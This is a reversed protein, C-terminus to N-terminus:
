NLIEPQVARRSFLGETGKRPWPVIVAPRQICPQLPRQALPISVVCISSNVTSMATAALPVAPTAAPLDPIEPRPMAVSKQAVFSADLGGISGNGSVDGVIVPDILPFADFGKVAGIAVNAIYAADMGSYRKNGSTDGLYAVAQIATDGQAAGGNVKVAELKLLGAAGYPAMAPVSAQIQLLDKVGASLATTGCATVTMRGPAKLNAVVTWDSPLASALTIDRVNLLTPDFVLEAYISLVGATNDMKVPLSFSQKPGRAIDPLSVVPGRGATVAVRQVFNGGATGDKDGDLGAFGDPRSFLTVTYDDTPLLGGSKVFHLTNTASEWLATGSLAGSQAGVITLDAARGKNAMGDYLNLKSLDIPMNFQLDFGSPTPSLHQLQLTTPLSAEGAVDFRFVGTAVAADAPQIGAEHGLLAHGHRTRLDGVQRRGGRCNRQ